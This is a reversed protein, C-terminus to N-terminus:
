RAARFPYQAFVLSVGNSIVERANKRKKDTITGIAVGEWVMRKLKPDVMDLNVTGETYQSIHTDTGYGYGGWTSYHGARYGYYPQHMSPSQTVRTKDNLIASVNILLDPNSSKVYGRMSMERDIANRFHDGILSTYNKSEISMPQFYDYTKYGSFDVSRDYDARIDPSSACSALLVALLIASAAKTLTTSLVALHRHTM